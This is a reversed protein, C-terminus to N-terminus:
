RVIAYIRGTTSNEIKEFTPTILSVANDQIYYVPKQQRVAKTVEDVVGKGVVGSISSFVVADCQDVWDFCDSMIKETTANQEVAGNPNIIEANPIADKILAMEYEEILTNYKWIHHAYYIKM